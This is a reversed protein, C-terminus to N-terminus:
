GTEDPLGVVVEVTFVSGRGEESELSIGGGLLRALGQSISLGLGAGGYRRAVSADAQVFPAFLKPQVAAPIGPGTDTVLFQIRIGGKEGPEGDKRGPRVALVVSGRATFKAANSLLNSLIQRLRLPDTVIIPPVEPSIDLRLEVGRAETAPRFLGTLHRLFDALPVQTADIAVAGSELQSWDLLENVLKMLSDAATRMMRLNERQDSDLARKEELMMEALGRIGSMPTRIEHSMVALYRNRELNASEACDKAQRLEEELARRATIDHFAVAVGAHGDFEVRGASLLTWIERGKRDRLCIERPPVTLDERLDALLRVRDEPRAYFGVAARNFLTDPREGFLEAALRNAFMIRGSELDSIVVPFPANEALERYQREGRRLRRNLRVLPAAWGLAAVALALAVGLAWYWARLDPKPDPDYVMAGIPFGKPVMGFDAYTDAIHRWRGPNMHGVEILGPHMLQITREAEFLLHERSKVPKYRAVILDVIETPHALAYDWGRLSAARFAKVRAENKRLEAETTFLNDGYFDIGGARPSFVSFAVGAQQLLFPEDSLYGTMAGVKGDLLDAVSFTHHVVNLRAPDIGENKFYAFLEASQPEVMMPRDHVAQLDVEAGGGLTLLVLPSHQFVAALVVVPAGKARLLVLESTGVGFEAEGRLVAEVPDKGPEAERLEVELGAERYYGQEIAAYYGAFQFQHRWKLQLTVRELGRAESVAETAGARMGVAIFFVGAAVWRFFRFLPQLHSGFIM